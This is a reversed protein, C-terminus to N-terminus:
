AVERRVQIQMDATTDIANLKRQVAYNETHLCSVGISDTWM